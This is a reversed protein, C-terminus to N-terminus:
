CTTEQSKKWAKAIAYKTGVTFIHEQLEKDARAPSFIRCGTVINEM